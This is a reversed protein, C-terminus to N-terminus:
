NVSIDSTELHVWPRTEIYKKYDRDRLELDRIETEAAYPDRARMKSEAKQYFVPRPPDAPRIVRGAGCKLGSGNRSPRLVHLICGPNSNDFFLHPTSMQRNMTM